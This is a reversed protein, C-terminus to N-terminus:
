AADDASDDGHDDAVDDATDDVADDRGGRARDVVKRVVLDDGGTGHAQVVVRDGERMDAADRVGDGDRDRVKLRVGDLDLALTQGVLGARRTAKNGGTVKVSGGSWTGRLLYSASKPQKGHGRGDKRADAVAPLALTAAVTVAALSIRAFPM